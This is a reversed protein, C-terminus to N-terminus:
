STANLCCHQTLADAWKWNPGPTRHCIQPLMDCNALLLLLLYHKNIKKGLNITVTVETKRNRVPPTIILHGPRFPHFASSCSSCFRVFWIWDARCALPEYTKCCEELSQMDATALYFPLLFLYCCYKCILEQRRLM